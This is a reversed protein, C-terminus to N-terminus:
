TPIRCGAHMHFTYISPHIDWMGSEFLSIYDASFHVNMAVPKAPFATDKETFVVSYGLLHEVVGLALIFWLLM